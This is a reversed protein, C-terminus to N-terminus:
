ASAQWRLLIASERGTEVEASPYYGPRLGTQEFGCSRYLARAAANSERVELVISAGRTAHLEAQLAVLLARALGKRRLAPDVSLYLLSTEDLVRQALSFGAVNIGQGEGQGLGERNREGESECMWQSPHAEAPLVAEGVVLLSYNTAAVAHAFDKPRWRNNADTGLWRNFVQIDGHVASRVQPALQALGM